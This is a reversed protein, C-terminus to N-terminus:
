KKEEEIKQFPEIGDSIVIQVGCEKWAADIVEESTFYETVIKDMANLLRLCRDPGFKYERHAALIAAGYLNKIMHGQVAMFGEEFGKDYADKVQQRHNAM